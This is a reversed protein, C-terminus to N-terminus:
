FIRRGLIFQRRCSFHHKGGVNVYDGWSRWCTEDCLWRGSRYHANRELNVQAQNLQANAQRLFGGRCELAAAKLTQVQRLTQNLNEQASQVTAEQQHLQSTFQQANQVTGFVTRQWSKTATPRNSHLYSRQAGWGYNHRAPMSRHGASRENSSRHEAREGAGAAGGGRIPQGRSGTTQDSEIVLLLDGKRVYKNDVVHLEVIRGAVEPAMTSSMPAYPPTARGRGRWISAGCRGGWCGPLHLRQWGHNFIPRIEVSRKTATRSKRRVHPPVETSIM